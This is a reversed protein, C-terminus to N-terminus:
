RSLKKTGPRKRKAGPEVEDEGEEEEEEKNQQIPKLKRQSRTRKKEKKLEEAEKESPFLWGSKIMEDLEEDTDESESSSETADVIDVVHQIGDDVKEKKEEKEEEKKEKFGYPYPKTFDLPPKITLPKKSLFKYLLLRADGLTLRSLFELISLDSYKDRSNCFLDMFHKPNDHDQIYPLLLSLVTLNENPDATDLYVHCFDKARAIASPHVKPIRILSRQNIDQYAITCSFPSGLMELVAGDNTLQKIRWLTHHGNHLPHPASIFQGIRLCSTSLTQSKFSLHSLLQKLLSEAQYYNAFYLLAEMNHLSKLKTEELKTDYCIELFLQFADPHFQPTAPLELEKVDSDGIFMTEFYKCARVLFVKHCSFNVESSYILNIDRGFDPGICTTWVLGSPVAMTLPPRKFQSSTHV